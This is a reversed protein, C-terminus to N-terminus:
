AAEKTRKEAATQIATEIFRQVWTYDVPSLVGQYIAVGDKTVTFLRETAPAKEKAM